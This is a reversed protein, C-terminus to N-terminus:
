ISYNNALHVLTQQPFRSFFMQWEEEKTQSKFGQLINGIAEKLDDPVAENPYALSAAANCFNYLEQSIGYPNTMIIQCMGRFSSEKEVRDRTTCIAICWQKAFSSLHPGLEEPAVCGLRCLTVAAIGVLLRNETHIVEMLNRLITPLYPQLESATLKTSIEGLSWIANNCVSVHHPHFNQCLIPILQNVLPRIAPFCARAIDGLLTFSSQRVEPTTDLMCKYLLNMLNSEALLSEIQENVAGVVSGILDLACIALDKDPEEYFESEDTVVIQQDLTKEVLSLCRKFVPGSFPLFGTQLASAICAVCEFLPFLEKDDDRTANWKDIVRPMFLDIYQQQNLHHGLYRALTGVADYLIALNKRQYNPFATVLTQLITELYPVLRLGAEEELKALASCASQQVKKNNDLMRELLRSLLPKLYVDSTDSLIWRFYRSITWCTIVRILSRESAMCNILYPILDNLHPVMGYFCGEAIAGLALIGSEKVIWDSHFLTEKLVPLITPLLDNKFITAIADLAAASSKRLNWNDLLSEDDYGDEDDDSNGCDNRDGRDIQRYFRPRIDQDADPVMADERDGKLVVIEIDSLKMNSILLPILRPLHPRLIDKCLGSEALYHWFESSELALSEDSDQTRSLMYEVIGNMHPMLRDVKTELLLSLARCVQKCVEKDKDTSLNFLGQMFLDIHCQFIPNQVIIFCNICSIAHCRLKSSSHGFFTIFKPILAHLPSDSGTMSHLEKADECIKELTNLAGECANYDPSDMMHCLHPLLQPWATLGGKVVITSIVIGISARILQSPDALGAVCSEKVYDFVENDIRYFNQKLHNKLVLGSLSRTAEDENSIKTLVYAYYNSIDPSENLEKLQQQVIKQSSNDPSQSLKLLNIVQRLGEEQPLWNM